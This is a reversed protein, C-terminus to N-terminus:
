SWINNKFSWGDDIFKSILSNTFHDIEILRKNPFNDKEQLYVRNTDEDYDGVFVVYANPYNYNFFPSEKTAYTLILVHYDVFNAFEINTIKLKFNECFKKIQRTVEM